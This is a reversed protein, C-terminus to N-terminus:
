AGQPPPNPHPTSPAPARPGTVGWGLGGGCPPLPCSSVGGCPPLPGSVSARSPSGTAGADPRPGEDLGALQRLERIVEALTRGDILQMAYYHVGRDHGVWYVPVINTHHLQASAQAENKFRRLQKADLAAAFPLLKLAVRRGLSRQEAEYVIGMGGRGVERLIRFDGLEGLPADPGATAGDGRSAELGALVQMAPLMRRLEAAHEPHERVYAEVDVPEGGQIREALDDLLDDLRPPAAAAPASRATDTM